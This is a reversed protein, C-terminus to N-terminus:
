HETTHIPHRQLHLVTLLCSDVILVYMTAGRGEGRAGPKCDLDVEVFSCVVNWDGSGFRPLCVSCGPLSRPVAERKLAGVCFASRFAVGSVRWELCLRLSYVVSVSGRRM